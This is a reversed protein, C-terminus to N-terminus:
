HQVGEDLSVHFCRDLTRLQGSHLDYDRLKRMSQDLALNCTPDYGVLVQEHWWGSCFAGGQVTRDSGLTRMCRRVCLM